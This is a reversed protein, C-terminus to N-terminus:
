WGSPNHAPSECRLRYTVTDGNLHQFVVVGATVDNWRPPSSEIEINSARCFPNIYPFITNGSVINRPYARAAVSPVSDM